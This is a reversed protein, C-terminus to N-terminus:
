PAARPMANPQTSAARPKQGAWLAVGCRGLLEAVAVAADPCALPRAIDEAEGLRHYDGVTFRHKVGLQM